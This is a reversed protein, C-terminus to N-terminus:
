GRRGRLWFGGALLAAGLALAWPPLPVDASAPPPLEYRVVLSPWAVASANNRSGFRKANSDGAEEGIVIWGHNSSPQALWGQVDAVMQVTSPFTVASPAPGVFVTTSPAAVFSGGRQGWVLSPWQRHTWTTDGAQAPAGIGADGGNAPGESWSETLRHVTHDHFGRARIQQLTLRVERVQAGPPLSSLDFRLLSRRVAGAVIVSTWLNGGQGDATADYAPGGTQEAFITADAVPALSSELTQALVLAPLLLAAATALRGVSTGRISM